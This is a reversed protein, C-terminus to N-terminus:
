RGWLLILRVPPSRARSQIIVKPGSPIPSPLLWDTLVSPRHNRRVGLRLFGVARPNLPASILSSGPRVRWLLLQLSKRTCSQKAVKETSFASWLWPSYTCMTSEDRVTRVERCFKIWLQHLGFNNDKNHKWLVFRLVKRPSTRNFILNLFLSNQLLFYTEGVNLQPSLTNYIKSFVSCLGTQLCLWQKFTPTPPFKVMLLTFTWLLSSVLM